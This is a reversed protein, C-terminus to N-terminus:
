QVLWVRRYFVGMERAWPVSGVLWDFRNRGKVKSGTDDARVVGIGEIYFLTGLKWHNRDVAITFGPVIIRGSATESPTDDTQWPVPNYVTGRWEGLFEGREFISM